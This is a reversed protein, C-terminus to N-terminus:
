PRGAAPSRKTKARPIELTYEPSLFTDLRDPTCNPLALVSLRIKDLSVNQAIRIDLDTLEDELKRNFQAGQMVSLFLLGTDRVTLYSIKLSLAHGETWNALLTLLKRLQSSFQAFGVEAKCARIAQEVTLNFRDEDEPVITVQKHKEGWQLQIVVQQSTKTAM